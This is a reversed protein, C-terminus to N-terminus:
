PGPLVGRRTGGGVKILAVHARTGMLIGKEVPFPLDSLVKSQLYLPVGKDQLSTQTESSKLIFVWRMYGLVQGSNNCKWCNRRM